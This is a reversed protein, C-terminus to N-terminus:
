KRDLIFPLPRVSVRNFNPRKATTSPNCAKALHTQVVSLIASAGWFLALVHCGAVTGMATTGTAATGTAVAGMAATGTTAVGTAGGIVTADGAGQVNM